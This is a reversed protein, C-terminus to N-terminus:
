LLQDRCRSVLNLKANSSRLSNKGEGHVKVRNGSLIAVSQNTLRFGVCRPIGPEVYCSRGVWCSLVELKLYVRLVVAQSPCM